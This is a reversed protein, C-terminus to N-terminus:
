VKELPAAICFKQILAAFIPNFPLSNFIGNFCNAGIDQAVKCCQPGLKVHFTLLSQLLDHSCGEVESIANWCESPNLSSGGGIPLAIDTLDVDIDPQPSLPNELTIGVLFEEYDHPQPSPSPSDTALAATAAAFAIFLVAFM